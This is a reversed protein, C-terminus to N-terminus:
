LKSLLLAVTLNHSASVQGNYLYIETARWATIGSTCLANIMTAGTINAEAVGAVNTIEFYTAGVADVTFTGCNGANFGGSIVLSSTAAILQSIEPTTIGVGTTYTYRFVNAGQDTVTWVSTTDGLTKSMRQLSPRVGVIHYTVYGAPTTITSAVYGQASTTLAVAYTYLDSSLSELKIGDNPFLSYGQLGVTNGTSLANKTEVEGKLTHTTNTLTTIKWVIGRSLLSSSYLDITTQLVNDIYFIPLACTQVGTV